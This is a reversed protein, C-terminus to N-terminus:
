DVYEAVCLWRVSFPEQSSCAAVSGKLIKLWQASKQLAGALVLFGAEDLLRDFSAVELNDVVTQLGSPCGEVGEDEGPTFVFAVIFFIGAAM